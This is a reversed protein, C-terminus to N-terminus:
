LLRPESQQTSLQWIGHHQASPKRFMAVRYLFSIAQWFLWSKCLMRYTSPSPNTSRRDGDRYSAQHKSRKTYRSFRVSGLGRLRSAPHHMDVVVLEHWEAHEQQHVEIYCGGCSAYIPPMCSLDREEISERETRPLARFSDKPKLSGEEFGRPSPGACDIFFIAFECVDKRGSEGGRGCAPPQRDPQL